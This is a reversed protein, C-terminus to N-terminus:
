LCVTGSEVFRINGDATNILLNGDKYIGNAVGKIGGATINRGLLYDMDSEYLKSLSTNNVIVDRIAELIELLLSNRDIDYACVEKLSSFEDYASNVNIGIGIKLNQIGHDVGRPSLISTDAIIGCLKKDGLYIDNPWKVKFLASYKQSLLKCLAFGIRVTIAELVEQHVSIKMSFILDKYKQNIWKDGKRGRGKSQWEAICLSPAFNQDIDDHTSTTEEKYFLHMGPWIDNLALSLYSHDLVRSKKEQM